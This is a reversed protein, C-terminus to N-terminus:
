NATMRQATLTGTFHALLMSSNSNFQDITFTGTYTNGSRDVTIQQRISAPGVFCSTAPAVPKCLKGTNDWGLGVHNLKFSSQGTAAWVGMCVDGTAPDRGGSVMVETGDAHWQQTGFDFTAGDPIGLAANGRSIFVVNWMGVISSSEKDRDDVRILSPKHRYVAQLLESQRPASDFVKPKDVPQDPLACGASSLPVFVTACIMFGFAMHIATQFTKM